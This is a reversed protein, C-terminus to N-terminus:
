DKLQFFELLVHGKKVALRQSAFGMFSKFSYLWGILLTQESLYYRAYETDDSLTYIKIGKIERRM